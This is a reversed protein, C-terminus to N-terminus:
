VGPKRRVMKLRTRKRYERTLVPRLHIRIRARNGRLGEFVYAHALGCDCCFEVFEEGETFESVENDHWVRTKPKSKM